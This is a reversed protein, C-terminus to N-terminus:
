IKKRRWVMCYGYSNLFRAATFVSKFHKASENQFIVTIKKYHNKLIAAGGFCSDFIAIPPRGNNPLLRYKM